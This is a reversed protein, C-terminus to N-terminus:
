RGAGVVTVPEAGAVSKLLGALDEAMSPIGYGAPPRESLGHGRLAYLLVRHDRALVPAVTFYWNALTGVFMGHLLVIRPGRGAAAITIITFLKDRPGDMFLQLQSHQDVAAM